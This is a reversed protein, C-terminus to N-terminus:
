RGELLRNLARVKGPPLGGAAALRLAQLGLAMYVRKAEPEGKLAVLHARVTHIDGRVIPGTLAKELGLSKVNQLTGQVLPLLARVADEEPVGASKLAEVATWELAVLANSALACAAHYRRKKEVMGDRARGIGDREAAREGLLLARGGLARVIAAADKVAKRDGEVGWTIGKFVSAPLDKRPFSQVPHLSAVRAGRAALPLLLGSPLLGSTHFVLRGSWSGGARALGSAVAGVADDPVAIVVMGGAGAAAALSTSAREAGLALRAERAAGARRDV